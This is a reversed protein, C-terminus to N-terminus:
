VPESLVNGADDALPAANPAVNLRKGMPCVTAWTYCKRSLIERNGGGGTCWPSPSPSFLINWSHTVALSPVAAWVASLPACRQTRTCTNSFSHQPTPHPVMLKVPAKQVWATTKHILFFCFFCGFAVRLLRAMTACLGSFLGNVGHQVTTKAGLIQM